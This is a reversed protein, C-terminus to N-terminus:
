NIGLLIKKLMLPPICEGLCDRIVKESTDDPVKWSKPLSSLIILEYPTLVRADSYTGDKKLRGPHVNRQSSIADNRMTITPAPMDWNIRRYSSRYGKVPTGDKKKPYYAKNEFATKGSPTRSMCKTHEDTHTRAFHWKIESKQGSELSPLHGIAERVTTKKREVKPWNWSRGKKYMVIIARKRVQPVGYDSADFIKSDITYEKGYKRSLIEVVTLMQGRQPMKFTLFTPVNEVLVYTPSKVDIFKFVQRILYNREDTLMEANNRNRGAVSIGQCPPSAILLDIKKPAAEVIQDFIKKRTIDGCIMRTEPYLKSYLDCRNELLENAVLVEIGIKSFYAEAIGASTFLTVAKMKKKKRM